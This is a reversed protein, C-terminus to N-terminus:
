FLKKGEKLRKMRLLAELYYYDAYILPVDVESNAPKSGTSHLLVFGKNEGIPSRYYNTLNQVIKDATERYKKGNSSYTSLEYLASAMVAAASVDRPENPIDPANFDWYPVLDIPLTPHNLIFSAIHEAQRLYIKNKTERFCMTFGYLGWAQGRAWASENAYGQATEKKRVQGTATDYDVVHYSSHDPRYHNKLTTNAHSVAIKYFSSDGTLKTAEFLLELNMMNDIIVPFNWQEKHHDWSRICGIKPNFRTSLTKASQIIVDKYHPEKTLRYGNGFSCYIKFGMDHSTANTKEKEMNATFDVARNKWEQKKTFEYLFWLEGPFFGSTWDKSTVLKLKGTSDLTRPSVLDSNNNRAKSIESLMLKTQLEADTFIKSLGRNTDLSIFQVELLKMLESKQITVPHIVLNYSGAELSVIGLDGTFTETNSTNTVVKYQFSKELKTTEVTNKYFSLTYSGGSSEEPALYKILVKYIGAKVTRFQWTLGQEKSKWGEVYYRDAKGDGYSFGKGTEIADFALFRERNTNPVVFHISDSSKEENWDFVIVTNISDPAIKPVFLIKYGKSSQQINIKKSLDTLLHGNSIQTFGSLYLKGDRPWNFVHLYLKNKKVTSVGWSHYPLPSATTGYISESNKDMWKGIGQLIMVDKTDFTGDGKPGINMLLNGGRSAASALLRIFHSVPKHSSDFKSYGYSENTTPIAEWDGTVPYFEAPRDATNKYDGFNSNAFRVLRGNVVVNQDIERIAKLIRINESLPLKQPTDFWLIDPHYKNILERIQPIAKEDVYKQAKVLLEPHLDYWDRGGYLNLDGGPNKYEWDNGPADPHEWDFAHSYYFGFELGYKKCAASLEAMPDRQFPTQKKINFDSVDSPFMAFGDHHKSTIIMYKMGAKKANQVWEDANFKVPNFRHALELYESRSIKEKRMLHEAYGNVKKGKWEGGATSYIGWHIFMGFKSERWWQIRQDHNKMSTSWWSNIAEDIAKQDREKGKNLMDKDEDGTTQSFVNSNLLLVFLIPLVFIKKM